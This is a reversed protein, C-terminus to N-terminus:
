APPVSGSFRDAIQRLLREIRDGTAPFIHRDAVRNLAVRLTPFSDACESYVRDLGHREADAFRAAMRYGAAGLEEYYAIGPAGRRQVRAAIHDPFLGSLWLAFEGMHARLLFARHGQSRDAEAVIDVLYRFEVFEDEVRHAHGARGFALLLAALYDAIRRDRIDDELLAHRVLLYFVVHVPASSFERGAMLANFTRPDDLIADLGEERLREEERARAQEEGRTLLWVLFAAESRGFSGRVDPLIM